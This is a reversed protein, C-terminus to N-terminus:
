PIQQYWLILGSILDKVENIFAPKLDNKGATLEKLIGEVEKQNSAEDNCRKAVELMKSKQTNLKQLNDIVSKENDSSQQYANIAYYNTIKLLEPVYPTLSSMVFNPINCTDKEQRDTSNSM